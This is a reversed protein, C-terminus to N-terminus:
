LALLLFFTVQQASDLALRPVLPSLYASLVVLGGSIPIVILMLSALLRLGSENRTARVPDPQM